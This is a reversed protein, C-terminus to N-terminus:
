SGSRTNYAQHAQNLPNQPSKNWEKSLLHKLQSLRMGPNEQKLRPLAEEEYAKFAAKMRREPHRDADDGGGVSLAAIAEEVTRAEVGETVLRNVNEELAAPTQLVPTAADKQAAPRSAAARREQEAQVQSRTVKVAPRKAAVQQQLAAEEQQLLLAAEQKKQQQEAKKREADEKKTQKKVVHKADDKWYEDDAAKQKREEAEAKASAKKARAAASKANEGVFKKPM